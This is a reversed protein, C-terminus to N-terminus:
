IQQSKSKSNPMTDISYKFFMVQEFFILSLLLDSNFPKKSSTNTSRSVTIVTWSNLHNLSFMEVNTLLEIVLSRTFAFGERIHLGRLFYFFLTFTIQAQVGFWPGNWDQKWPSLTTQYKVFWMQTLFTTLTNTRKWVYKQFSCNKNDYTRLWLLM